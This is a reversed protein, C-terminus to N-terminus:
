FVSKVAVPDSSWKQVTERGAFIPPSKEGTLQCGHCIYWFLASSCIWMKTDLENEYKFFYTKIVIQGYFEQYRYISVLIKFLHNVKAM